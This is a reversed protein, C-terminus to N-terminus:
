WHTRWSTHRTGESPRRDHFRSLSFLGSWATLSHIILLVYRIASTHRLPRAAFPSTIALDRLLQDSNPARLWEALDATPYERGITPTVEFSKFQDLIGSLELPKQTPNSLSIGNLKSAVNNHINEASPLFTDTASPPAM